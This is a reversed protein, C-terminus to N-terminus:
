IPEISAAGSIDRTIIPPDGKYRVEVAGSADVILEETVYVDAEAAGSIELKFKETMLELANVEIAGSCDLSVVSATGKLKLESAGSFDGYVANYDLDMIAEVAGSFDLNLRDGTIVGKTRIESGGRSAISELEEFNIYLVLERHNGIRRKSSVYLVEDEVYSEIHQHLNEDTEIKLASGSTQVLVLEYSGSLDISHFSEVDRTESTVKGNGSVGPDCSTIFVTILLLGLIRSM